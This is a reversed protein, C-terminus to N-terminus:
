LEIHYPRERQCKGLHLRQVKKLEKMTKNLYYESDLIMRVNNQIIRKLLM